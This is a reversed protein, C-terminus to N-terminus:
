QMNNNVDVFMVVVEGDKVLVFTNDNIEDDGTVDTALEISGSEVGVNEDSDVYIIVSDSTIKAEGTTDFIIKGSSASYGTIQDLTGSEIAIVQDAYGDNLEFEVFDGKTVSNAKETKIEFTDTGDFVTVVTYTTGDEKIDYTEDLVYAYIEEGVENPLSSSGLDIYALEVYDIGNTKNTYIIANSSTATVLVEDWENVLEGSIVIQEDDEYTVFIIANDNVYSGALKEDEFINGSVVASAFDDSDVALFTYEDGDVEYEVIAGVNADEYIETNVIVVNGDSLIIKARHKSDLATGSAEEAAIVFAYDGIADEAADVNYIVSGVVYFSIETNLSPNTDGSAVTFWNGDIRFEGNRKAEVTGTHLELIEVKYNNNYEDKTIQVFDDKAIDADINDDDFTLQGTTFGTVSVNIKSSNVFTVEGVIAETVTSIVADGNDVIYVTADASAEDIATYDDNSIDISIGDFEAEYSDESGSLTIDGAFTRIITNDESVKLGYITDSKTDALIDVKQGIFDTLDREIDLPSASHKTELDADSTFSLGTKVDSDQIYVDEYTALNMSVEALTKDTGIYDEYINSYKVTETYLANYLIQAASQREASNAFGGIYDDTIKTELALSLTKSEWGTGVLGSEDAKYGLVVLSMKLAEMGTVDDNPDFITDTKGAIIGQSQCYKIYGEAWHGGIDTFTTSLDKFADSDDSGGNQITFIMKAMEARTVTDEPRFSGDEYGKIVNLAVLTDVAETLTIDESDTFHAGAVTSLLTASALSLSLVKNFNTM